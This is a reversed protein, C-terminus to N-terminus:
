KGKWLQINNTTNNTTNKPFIIFIEEVNSNNKSYTRGGTTRNVGGGNLTWLLHFINKNKEKYYGIARHNLVAREVAQKTTFSNNCSVGTVKPPIIKTVNHFIEVRAFDVRNIDLEIMNGYRNTFGEKMSGFGEKMNIFCEKVNPDVCYDGGDHKRVGKCQANLYSTADRDHKCELGAACPRDLGDCDAECQGLKPNAGPSWGKWGMEIRPDEYVNDVTLGETIKKKNKIVCLILLVALFLLIYIHM